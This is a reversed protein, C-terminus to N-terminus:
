CIKIVKIDYQSISNHYQSVINYVHRRLSIILKNFYSTDTAFNPAGVNYMAFCIKFVSGQELYSFLINHLIM